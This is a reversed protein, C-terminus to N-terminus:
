WRIIQILDAIGDQFQVPILLEKTGNIDRVIASKGGEVSITLADDIRYGSEVEEIKKGIAARFYCSDIDEPATLHFHRRFSADEKSSKIPEPFDSVIAFPTEYNFTPQGKKNLSYGRFQFGSTEKPSQTPWPMELSDLIAFPVTPELKLQHDGLPVQTGPGRGVWHKSADIFRNHWVLKLCLDNADWALHAKEPYGVAIGRPSTGDIFNRYIIPEKEPKLEIMKAILGDPIGAKNGDKLYTWVASIQKDPNGEYIDRIAAQGNPFGTPM